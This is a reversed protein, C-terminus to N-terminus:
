GFAWPFSAGQMYGDVVASNWVAAATNRSERHLMAWKSLEVCTTDAMIHYAALGVSGEPRAKDQASHRKIPKSPKPKSRAGPRM